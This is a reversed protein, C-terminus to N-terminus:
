RRLFYVSYGKNKHVINWPLKKNTPVIIYNAQYKQSLHWFDRWTLATYKEELLPLVEWSRVTWTLPDSATLDSLREKWVFVDKPLYPCAKYDAVIAREAYLRFDEKEPPTIFIADKSTNERVWACVERWPDGNPSLPGFNFHARERPLAISCFLILGFISYLFLKQTPLQVLGKGKNKILGMTGWVLWILTLIKYNEPFIVVLLPLICILVYLLPLFKKKTRSRLFAMFLMFLFYELLYTTRLLQLVAVPGLRFIDVGILNIIIFAALATIIFLVKQRNEKKILLPTFVYLFLFILVFYIWGGLGTFSLLYHQPYRLNINIYNFINALYESQPQAVIIMVQKVLDPLLLIVFSILIILIEIVLIRDKSRVIGFLLSRTENTKPKNGRSARGKPRARLDNVLKFLYYPTLILLWNLGMLLHAKGCLFALIFATIFNNRLFYLLSFLLFLNGLMIPTFGEQWLRYGGLGHPIVMCLFYTVLLAMSEQKFLEKAILYTCLVHGILCILYLLFFAGPLSFIKSLLILLCLVNTHYPTLKVFWDNQLFAPDMLHRIVPIYFVQEWHGYRYGHFILFFFCLFLLYLPTLQKSLLKKM